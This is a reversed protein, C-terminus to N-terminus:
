VKRLKGSLKLKWQSGIKSFTTVEVSEVDHKAIITTNRIVVHALDEGEMVVGLVEVDDYKTAGSFTESGTFTESTM